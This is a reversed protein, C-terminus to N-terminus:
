FDESLLDEEKTTVLSIFGINYVTKGISIKTLQEAYKIVASSKNKKEWNEHEFKYKERSNEGM